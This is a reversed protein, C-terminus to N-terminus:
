VLMHSVTFYNRFIKNLKTDFHQSVCLSNRLLICSVQSNTRAASIDTLWPLLKSLSSVSAGNWCLVDACQSNKPSTLFCFFVIFIDLLIFIIKDSGISLSVLWGTCRMKDLVILRSPWALMVDRCHHALLSLCLWTEGDITRQAVSRWKLISLWIHPSILM